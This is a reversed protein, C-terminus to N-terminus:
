VFTIFVNSQSLITASFKSFFSFINSEGAPSDPHLFSEVLFFQYGLAINGTKLCWLCCGNYLMDSITFVLFTASQIRVGEFGVCVTIIIIFLCPRYEISLWVRGLM